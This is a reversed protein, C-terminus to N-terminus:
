PEELGATSSTSSSEEAGSDARSAVRVKAGDDILQQGVTVVQAGLEDAFIQVREERRVGVRIPTWRAEHGGEAVTFVGSQGDRTTVASFPVVVADEVTKLNLTVRVFMGPNLRGDGNDIRLEVRAQRSGPEFVPAVRHVRAPFSVGPHADTEVGASQGAELLPYEREAVFIVATIPDLEVITLLPTNEDVRAGASIHRRAVVREDSGGTWDATVRAYRRRIRAADLAAQARVRQARAVELSAERDLKIARAEELRAEPSVGRERLQEIRALERRALDLDTEARTVNATAVEVEAAAQGAVQRLEDDDLEAVVQGRGVVDGLDVSLNRLRGAVNAAVVFEAPAELTGSYTRVLSISERRVPGVEVPAGEDDSRTREGADSCYVLLSAFLTVLVRARMVAPAPVRVSAM